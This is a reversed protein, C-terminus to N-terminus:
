ISDEATLKSDKGVPKCQQVYFNAPKFMDFVSKRESVSSLGESSSSNATKGASSDVSEEATKLKGKKNPLKKIEYRTQEKGHSSEGDQMERRLLITLKPVKWESTDYGFYKGATNSKRRQARCTPQVEAVAVSNQKQVNKGMTGVGKRVNKNSKIDESALSSSEFAKNMESKKPVVLNSQTHSANFNAGGKAMDERILVPMERRLSDLSDISKLCDMWNKSISPAENYKEVKTLPMPEDSDVKLRRPAVAEGCESVMTLLLTANDCEKPSVSRENVWPEGPRISECSMSLQIDLEAPSHLAAISELEVACDDSVFVDGPVIVTTCLEPAILEVVADDSCSSTPKQAVDTMVATKGRSPQPQKTAPKPKKPTRVRLVSRSSTRIRRGIKQGDSVDDHHHNTSLHDDRVATCKPSSPCNKGRGKKSEHFSKLNPTLHNGEKSPANDKATCSERKPTATNPMIASSLAFRKREADQNSARKAARYDLREEMLKKVPLRRKARLGRHPEPLMMGQSLLIEADYRTIGRRKLEPANLLHAQKRLNNDRMDWNELAGIPLGVYQCPSTTPKPQAAVDKKDSKERNIRDSTDRLQYGNALQLKASPSTPTFAGGQVRECTECECLCNGDGFFDAGYYCTIEADKEIDRLVQVCATNRGTSVFKCNPRCDHNIFAAPGLWLQARNKRCSFMVSFDNVGPRLVKSEEEATLESLCGVLFPIKEGKSWKKTACVKGGCQSEMSYRYCPCIEFGSSKDFIKLYRFMHEKFLQLQAKSLSSLFGSVCSFSTLSKYSKEYNQDVKFRTVIAKLEHPSIALPEYRLDMKHTTFGLVPDIVLATALDDNDCLDKFNMM